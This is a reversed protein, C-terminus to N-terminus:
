IRLHGLKSAHIRQNHSSMHVPLFEKVDPQFFTTYYWADGMPPESKCIKLTPSSSIPEIIFSLGAQINKHLTDSYLVESQTQKNPVPASSLELM